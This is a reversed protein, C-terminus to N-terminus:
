VRRRKSSSSSSSSSSSKRLRKHTKAKALAEKKAARVEEKERKQAAKVEEKKKENSIAKLINEIKVRNGIYDLTLGLSEMIIDVLPPIFVNSLIIAEKRSHETIPSLMCNCRYRCNCQVGYDNVITTVAQYRMDKFKLSFFRILNPESMFFVKVQSVTISHYIPHNEEPIHRTPAGMAFIQKRISAKWKHNHILETHKKIDELPFHGLVKKISRLDFRNDKRVVTNFLVPLKLADLVADDNLMSKVNDVNLDKFNWFTKLGIESIIPDGVFFQYYNLNNRLKERLHKVDCGHTIGREVQDYNVISRTPDSSVYKNDSNCSNFFKFYPTETNIYKADVLAKKSIDDVFFYLSLRKYTAYYNECLSVFGNYNNSILYSTALRSYLVARHNVSIMSALFANNELLPLTVLNKEFINGGVVVKSPFCIDVISKTYKSLYPKIRNYAGIDLSNCFSFMNINVNNIYRVFKSCSLSNKMLFELWARALKLCSRHVVYQAADDFAEASEFLAFYNEDLKQDVKAFVIGHALFM